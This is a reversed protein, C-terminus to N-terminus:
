RLSKLGESPIRTQKQLGFLGPPEQLTSAQNFFDFTLYSYNVTRCRFEWKSSGCLHFIIRWFWFWLPAEHKMDRMLLFKFTLFSRNHRKSRASGDLSKGDKIRSDSRETWGCDCIINLLSAKFCWLRSKEKRIWHSCSLLGLVTSFFASSGAALGRSGEETNINRMNSDRGILIFGLAQFFIGGETHRLCVDM